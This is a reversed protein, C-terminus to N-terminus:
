LQVTCRLAGEGVTGEVLPGEFEEEDFKERFSEFNQIEEALFTLYIDWRSRPVQFHTGSKITPSSTASNSDVALGFCRREM